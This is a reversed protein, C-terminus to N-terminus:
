LTGLDKLMERIHNSGELEECRVLDPSAFGSSVALLLADNFTVQHDLRVILRAQFKRIATEMPPPIRVMRREM